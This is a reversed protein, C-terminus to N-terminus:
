HLFAKAAFDDVFDFRELPRATLRHFHFMKHVQIEGGHDIFGM